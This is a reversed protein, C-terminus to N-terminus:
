RATKRFSALKEQIAPLAERTAEAGREIMAAAAWFELMWFEKLEPNILVDAQGARDNGLEAEISGGRAFSWVLSRDFGSFGSDCFADNVDGTPFVRLFATLGTDPEPWAGESFEEFAICELSFFEADM